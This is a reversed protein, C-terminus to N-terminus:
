AASGELLANQADAHANWSAVDAASPKFNSWFIIDSLVETPLKADWEDYEYSVQEWLLPTGKLPGPELFGREDFQKDMGAPTYISEQGDSRQFQDPRYGHNAILVEMARKCRKKLVRRNM